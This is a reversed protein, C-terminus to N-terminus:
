VTASTLSSLATFTPGPIAVPRRPLPPTITTTSFPFKCTRCISLSSSFRHTIMPSPSTMIMQAYVDGLVGSAANMLSAFRLRFSSFSKGPDFIKAIPS